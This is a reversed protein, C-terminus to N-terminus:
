RYPISESESESERECYEEGTELLETFYAKDVTLSVKVKVKVKGKM